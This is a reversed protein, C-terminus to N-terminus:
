HRNGLYYDYKMYAVHEHEKCYKCFVDPNLDMLLNRFQQHYDELWFILGLFSSMCYRSNPQNIEKIFFWFLLVLVYNSVMPMLITGQVIFGQNGSIKITFGMSPYDNDVYDSLVMM